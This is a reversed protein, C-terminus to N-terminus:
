LLSVEARGAPDSASLNTSCFRLVPLPVTIVTGITPQVAFPRSSPQPNLTASYPAWCSVSAWHRGSQPLPFFGSPVRIM